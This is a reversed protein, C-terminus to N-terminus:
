RFGYLEIRPSNKRHLHSTSRRTGSSRGLNTLLGAVELLDCREISDAVEAVDVGIRDRLVEAEDRDM